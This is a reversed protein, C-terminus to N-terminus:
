VSRGAAGHPRPAPGSRPVVHRPTPHLDPHRVVLAPRAPEEPAGPPVEEHQQGCQDPDTDDPKCEPEEAARGRQLRAAARVPGTGSTLPTRAPCRPGPGTSAPCRGPGKSPGTL